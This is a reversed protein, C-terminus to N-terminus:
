IINVTCVQYHM